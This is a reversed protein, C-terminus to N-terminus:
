ISYQTIIDNAKIQKSFKKKFLTQSFSKTDMKITITLEVSIPLPM